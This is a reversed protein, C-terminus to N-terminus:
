VRRRRTWAFGPRAHERRLALAAAGAVSQRAAEVATVPVGGPIAYGALRMVQTGDDMMVMSVGPAHWVDRVTGDGRQERDHLANAFTGAPTTVAELSRAFYTSMCGRAGMMTGSAVPNRMVWEPNTLSMMSFRNGSPDAGTGGYYHARDPGMGYFETADPACATGANCAYACHMSYPGGTMRGHATAPLFAASLVLAPLLTMECNRNITMRGSSFAHDHAV